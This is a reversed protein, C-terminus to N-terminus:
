IWVLLISRRVFWKLVSVKPIFLLIQWVFLYYGQYRQLIGFDCSTLRKVNRSTGTLHSVILVSKQVSNLNNVKSLKIICMLLWIVSSECFNTFIQYLRSWIDMKVKWSSKKWELHNVRLICELKKVSIILHSYIYSNVTSTPPALICTFNWEVLVCNYCRHAITFSGYWMFIHRMNKLRPVLLPYTYIVQARFSM